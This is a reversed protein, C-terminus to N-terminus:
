VLYRARLLLLVAVILLAVLERRFIRREEGRATRVESEHVEPLQALPTPKPRPVPTPESM